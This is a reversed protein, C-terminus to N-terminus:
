AIVTVVIFGPNEDDLGVCVQLDREGGYWQVRCILLTSKIDVEPPMGIQGKRLCELADEINVRRQRMRQKAHRTWDIQTPQKVIRRIHRELQSISFKKFTVETESWALNTGMLKIPEITPADVSTARFPHQTRGM